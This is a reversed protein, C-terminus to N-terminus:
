SNTYHLNFLAMRLSNLYKSNHYIHDKFVGEITFGLRKYLDVAKVNEEIVGLNIKRLNLTQFCYNIIMSSAEFAYGKGWQNMDGMMIGYEGWGHKLNVPDIKINGIHKNNIKLHIAWFLIDKKEVESLYNRLTDLTYNGGNDLYKFIVPNNLWGVYEKSLHALSLPVCLLRDSELMPTM